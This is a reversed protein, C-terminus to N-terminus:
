IIKVISETTVTVCEFIMFTYFSVCLIVSSWASQVTSLRKCCILIIKIISFFLMSYTASFSVRM